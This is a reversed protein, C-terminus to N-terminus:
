LKYYTSVNVDEVFLHGYNTTMKIPEKTSLKFELLSYNNLEITNLSISDIIQGPDDRRYLYFTIKDDLKFNNVDSMISQIKIKNKHQNYVIMPKIPSSCLNDSVTTVHSIMIDHNYHLFELNDIKNPDDPLWTCKFNNEHYLFLKKMNLNLMGFLNSPEHKDIVFIKLNTPLSSLIEENILGTSFSNIFNDCDFGAIIKKNITDCNLQIFNNSTNSAKIYDFEWKPKYKQNIKSLVFQNSQYDRTVILNNLNIKNNFIDIIIDSKPFEVIHHNYNITSTKIPSVSIVQFTFKNFEVYFIEKKTQKKRLITKQIDFENDDIEM